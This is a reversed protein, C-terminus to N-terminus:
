DAPRYTTREPTRQGCLFLDVRQTVGVPARFLLAGPQDDYTARLLRGRGWAPLRKCVDGSAAADFDLGDKAGAAARAGHDLERVQADFDGSTLTLLRGGLESRTPAPVDGSSDAGAQPASELSNDAASGAAPKDDSSMPSFTEVLPKAGLGLVTVAAAAVLFGTRRRRRRVVDLSTVKAVPQRGLGAIVTALREAVEAPMPEDVRAQALLRRVREEQAPTLEDTM